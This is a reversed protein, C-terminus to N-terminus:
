RKIIMSPRHKRRGAAIIRTTPSTIFLFAFYVFVEDTAKPSVKGELPLSYFAFFVQRLLDKKM